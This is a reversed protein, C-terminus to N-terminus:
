EAKKNASSLRRANAKLGAPTESPVCIQEQTQQDPAWIFNVTGLTFPKTYIKPDDITV